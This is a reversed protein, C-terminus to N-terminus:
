DQYYHHEHALSEIIAQLLEYTLVGGGWGCVEVSDGAERLEDLARSVIRSQPRTSESDVLSTM